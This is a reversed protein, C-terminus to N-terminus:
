FSPLPAIRKRQWYFRYFVFSVVVFALLFAGVSGVLILVLHPHKGTEQGPSSGEGDGHDGDGNDGESLSHILDVCFPGGWPASCVCVDPAVCVGRGGCNSSCLPVECREGSHGTRQCLCTDAFDKSCVGGNLCPPDCVAGTELKLWLTSEALQPATEVSLIWLMPGTSNHTFEYFAVLTNQTENREVWIPEDELVEQDFDFTSGPCVGKSGVIRM